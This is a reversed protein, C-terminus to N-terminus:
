GRQNPRKSGKPGVWNIETGASTPGVKASFRGSPGTAARPDAGKENSDGFRM